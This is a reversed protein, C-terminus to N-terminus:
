KDSSKFLAKIIRAMPFVLGYRVIYRLLGSHAMLRAISPSTKEYVSIFLRGSLKEALWADRFYRLTVVAPAAETGCAATAIFCNSEGGKEPLRQNRQVYEACDKCLPGEFTPGGPISIDMSMIKVDKGCHNCKEM